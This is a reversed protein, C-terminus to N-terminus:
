KTPPPEPNLAGGIVGQGCGLAVDICTWTALQSNIGGGAIFAGTNLNLVGAGASQFGATAGYGTLPGVAVVPSFATAATGTIPVAAAGGVTTGAQSGTTAWLCSTASRGLQPPVSTTIATFAAPSTYHTLAGSGAGGYGAGIGSFTGGTVGGIGGGIAGSIAAGKPNSNTNQHFAM